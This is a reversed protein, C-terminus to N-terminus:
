TVPKLDVSTPLPPKIGNPNEPINEPAAVQKQAKTAKSAMAVVPISKFINIIIM